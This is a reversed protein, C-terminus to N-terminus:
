GWFFLCLGTIILLISALIDWFRKEGKTKIYSPFVAFLAAAIYLPSLFSGISFLFGSLAFMPKSLSLTKELYIGMGVTNKGLYLGTLFGMLYIIWGSLVIREMIDALLKNLLLATLFVFGGALFSLLSLLFRFLPKLEGILEMADSGGSLGVLFIFLHASFNGLLFLFTWLLARRRIGLTYAGVFPVGYITNIIGALLIGAILAEKLIDM